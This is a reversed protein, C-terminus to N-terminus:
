RRGLTLLGAESLSVYDDAGASLATLLVEDEICEAEVSAERLLVIPVDPYTVGLSALTGSVDDPLQSINLLILDATEPQTIAEAVDKIISLRYDFLHQSVMQTIAASVSVYNEIILISFRSM